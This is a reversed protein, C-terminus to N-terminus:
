LTQRWQHPDENPDQAPTGPVGCPMVRLGYDITGDLCYDNDSDEFVTIGSNSIPHSEIWHQHLDNSICGKLTVGNIGMVGDLCASHDAALVIKVYGSYAIIQFQEGSHNVCDDLNVAYGPGAYWSTGDMCTNTYYNAIEEPPSTSANAPLATAAFAVASLVGTLALVTGRRPIRFSL